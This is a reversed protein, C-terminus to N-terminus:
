KKEYFDKLPLLGHIEDTTATLGDVLSAKQRKSNKHASNKKKKKKNYYLM